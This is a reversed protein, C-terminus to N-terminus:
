FHNIYMKFVIFYEKFIFRDKNKECATIYAKGESIASMQTTKGGPAAAMDLINENEKPSLIIPPLMSSLSQLYIEGNNYIELERIESSGSTVRFLGVSELGNNNRLCEISRYLFLPIRWGSKEIALHLTLGMIGYFNTHRYLTEIWYKMELQNHCVFLYEKDFHIKFSLHKHDIERVDDDPVIQLVSDQLLIKTKKGVTLEYENPTKEHLVIPKTKLIDNKYFLITTPPNQM